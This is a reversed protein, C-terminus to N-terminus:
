NPSPPPNFWVDRFSLREGLPHQYRGAPRPPPETPSRAISGGHLRVGYQTRFELGDPQEPNGTIHLLGQHHMRHHHPCLCVLNEPHHTGGDIRHTLHHLHVIRNTCGPVRCSRDRRRVHRRVAAPVTSRPDGVIVPQGHREWIPALHCHCTLLDRLWRPLAAGDDDTLNGDADLHAHVKFRERRAPDTVSDSRNALEVLADANSVSRNTAQFEADRAQRLAADIVAGHDADFRGSLRWTGDPQKSMSLTEGRKATEPIPEPDFPPVEGGGGAIMTAM